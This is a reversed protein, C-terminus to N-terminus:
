SRTRGSATCLDAGPVSAGLLMRQTRSVISTGNEENRRQRIYWRSRKTILGKRGLRGDEGTVGAESSKVSSCLM